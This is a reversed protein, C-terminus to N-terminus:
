VRRDPYTNWIDDVVMLGTPRGAGWNATSDQFSWGGDDQYRIANRPGNGVAEIAKARVFERCGRQIDAPWADLGHSYELGLRAGSCWSGGVITGEEALLGRDLLAQLDTDSLAVGNVELSTVERILPHPLLVEGRALARVEVVAERPTGAFGRYREFTGEYEAVLETLLEDDYLTDDALAPVRSRLTEVDVCVVAPM